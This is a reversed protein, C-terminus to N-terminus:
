CRSHDGRSPEARDAALILDVAEELTRAVMWGDLSPVSPPSSSVLVPKVGANVAMQGDTLRDGIAFSRGLDLGLDAAAQWILGPAPKRCSCLNPVTEPPFEHHHPCVYIADLTVGEEALRATLKKHIAALAEPAILGRAVGSQNTVVVLRYGREQLRRLARGVGPFLEFDEPRSIYGPDPNLTGDRDLFVAPRGERAAGPLDPPRAGAPWAPGRGALDVIRGAEPPLRIPPGGYKAWIEDWVQDPSLERMCRGDPCVERHCELCDLSRHHLVLHRPGRPAVARRTTPGFLAVTPVDLAWAINMPGTDATVFLDLRALLAVFQPITLASHTFAREPGLDAVLRRATAEEGPGWFVLVPQGTAAHWRAALERYHELPWAKSPYTTHPNMGLLPRGRERVIAQAVAADAASWELRPRDLPGRLGFHDLFEGFLAMLHRNPDPPRFTAHYAWRRIRYDFGARFPIGSLLSILATRPNGFLDFLRDYRQRRVRRVLALTEWFSAGPRLEFIQVGLSAPVIAGFPKQCLFGLPEDPRTARLRQLSPLLHVIDGLGKLRILLTGPM